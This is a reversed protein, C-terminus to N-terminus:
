DRVVAFLSRPCPTNHPGIAEHMGLHVVHSGACTCLLYRELWRPADPTMRPLGWSPPVEDEGTDFFLVRRAREWMSTLMATAEDFGFERVLHHWVSLFVVCDVQPLLSANASNLDMVLFSALVGANVNGLKRRAFLATRIFRPEREVAITPIGLEALKFAFWGVNAGLDLASAVELELAIPRMREWRTRTAAARQGFTLGLWPLEQYSGSQVDGVPLHRLWRISRPFTDIRFRLWDIWEDL